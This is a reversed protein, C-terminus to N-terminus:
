VYIHTYFNRLIKYLNKYLVKYIMRMIFIKEKEEKYQAWLCIIRFKWLYYRMFSTYRIIEAKHKRVIGKCGQYLNEKNKAISNRSSIIVAVFEKCHFMKYKLGLSVVLDDDQWAKLNEDLYGIKDFVSKRVMISSTICLSLEKMLYKKQDYLSIDDYQFKYTKKSNSNRYYVNGYILSSETNLLAYLRNKISNELLYDDSDLFAIVKGRARKIGENRAVNAGKKGEPTVYYRIKDIEKYKEKLFEYTGDNSHDDCIIIEINSYTQNLCSDIARSIVRKRNYTPIVISVLFSEKDVLKRAETM